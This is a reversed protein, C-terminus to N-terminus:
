FNLYVYGSWPSCGSANCARLRMSCQGIAYTDEPFTMSLTGNGPTNPYDTGIGPINRELEYTTTGASANWTVQYRRKTNPALRVASVGSPTVPPLAVTVVVHGSWPGCGGANCAQVAYYYTGNPKGGLSWSGGATNAIQAWGGGNVNEFVNYSNAVSVGSWSITYAGNISTGGGAIGPASAPPLTIGVANSLRYGSCGSSNCAQVQYQYAGSSPTGFTASTAAGDYVTSWAGGNFQQVVVYRTATSASVTSWAGNNFSERLNYSTAGGIAQWSLVYSGNASSTAGGLSVYPGAVLPTFGFSQFWAIGEQVPEFQVRRNTGLLSSAPTSITM